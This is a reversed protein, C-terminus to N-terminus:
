HRGIKFVFLVALWQGQLERDTWGVNTWKRVMELHFAARAAELIHLVGGESQM